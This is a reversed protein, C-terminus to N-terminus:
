MLDSVIFGFYNQIRHYWVKRMRIDCQRWLITSPASNKIVQLRSFSSLFAPLKSDIRFEAGDVMM